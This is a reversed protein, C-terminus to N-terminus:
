SGKIFDVISRSAIDGPELIRSWLTIHVRDPVEVLKVEENGTELLEKQFRRNQEKRWDDDGEAFILLFPPKGPGVYNGVSAEQWVEPDEGWVSKPRDPAVEPVYIFASVPIVGALDNPSLGVEKLYREDSALLAALYAGASHGGLFVREPDGGYNAINSFVWRVVRAADRAHEPHMVTPSLRYNALVVVIGEPAFRQAVFDPTVAKEPLNYNTFEKNGDMLGGGHLFILVPAQSVGPPAFVDLLDKGDAYDQDPVYDIDRFARFAPEQAPPTAPTSCASSLALGIIWVGLSLRCKAPDPRTPTDM